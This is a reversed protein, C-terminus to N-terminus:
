QSEPTKNHFHAASVRRHAQNTKVCRLRLPAAPPPGPSRVSGRLLPPIDAKQEGRKPGPVPNFGAADRRPSASPVCACVSLQAGCRVARPLRARGPTRTRGRLKTRRPSRLCSVKNKVQAPAHTHARAAHRRTACSYNM